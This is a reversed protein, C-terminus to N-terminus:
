MRLETWRVGLILWFGKHAQTLWQVWQAKTEGGAALSPVAGVEFPKLVPDVLHRPSGWVQCVTDYEPSTGQRRIIVATTM